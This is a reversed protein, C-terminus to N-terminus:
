TRRRTKPNFGENAEIVGYIYQLAPVYINKPPLLGVSAAIDSAFHNCNYAFLAYAPVRRQAKKIRLLLREYKVASLSVRYAAIPKIRCDDAVPTLIGPMPLAAAVAAGTYGGVPSLMVVKEDLPKGTPSLRGYAIYTHGVPMMPTNRLRMEMYYHHGPTVRKADLRSPQTAWGGKCTAHSMETNILKVRNQAQAERQEDVINPNAYALAKLERYKKADEYGPDPQSKRWQFSGYDFFYPQSQKNTKVAVTKDNVPPENVHSSSASMDNIQTSTCGCVLTGLVLTVAINLM